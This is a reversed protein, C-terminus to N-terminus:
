GRGFTDYYEKANKEYKMLLEINKKELDTLDSKIDKHVPIYWPQADFFVRLPRNKFSYGHRAYITNRIILLDGKKLNEVDQKTLLTTSANLQYIKQTASSFEKYFDGYEDYDGPDISKRKKFIEWNGYERSHELMQEPHYKFIKKTLDYKREQIQIKNFSKWIGSLLTDNKKISFNFQGDYKNDGPESVQFIYTGMNEEITGSFPRYNGAVVSHGIVKIGSIEDISINIKNERNWQLAEDAYVMSKYDGEKANNFYGVWFGLLDKTDSIKTNETLNLEKEREKTIKTSDIENEIVSQENKILRNCNTFILTCVFLYIIKYKM